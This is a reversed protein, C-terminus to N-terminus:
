NGTVSVRFFGGKTPISPPYSVGVAEIPGAAGEGTLIAPTDTSEVWVALDPSFYVTYTLGAAAHDKRRGFVARFDTGGGTSLNAAIPQGPSTVAGGPVYDISAGGSLTPDTGFAFEQLNNFSDGDPNDEPEQQSLANDFTGNIWSGYSASVVKINLTAQVPVAIGDSVSVTFSSAGVDSNMPTGGLAGNVAVTLWAPGSVKAFTLSQSNVDSATTAISASYTTGAVAMKSAFPSANWSPVSNMTQIISLNDFSAVGGSNNRSEWNIQGNGGGSGLLYPIDSAVEVEDVFLDYTGATSNSPTAVFTFKHTVNSQFTTGLLAELTAKTVTTTSQGSGSNGYCFIANSAGNQNMHMGFRSSGRDDASPHTSLYSAVWSTGTNAL